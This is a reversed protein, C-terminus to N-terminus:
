IKNWLNIYNPYKLKLHIRLTMLSSTSIGSIMEVRENTAEKTILIDFTKCSFYKMKEIPSLNPIGRMENTMDMITAKLGNDVIEKKIIIAM